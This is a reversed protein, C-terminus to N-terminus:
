APHWSTSRPGTNNVLSRNRLSSWSVACWWTRLAPRGVAWLAYSNYKYAAMGKRQGLLAILVPWIVTARHQSSTPPSLALWIWYQGTVAPTGPWLVHVQQQHQSRHSVPCSWQAQLRNASVCLQLTYIQQAHSLAVMKRELQKFGNFADEM